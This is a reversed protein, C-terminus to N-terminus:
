FRDRHHQYRQMGDGRVPSLTKNRVEVVPQWGHSDMFPMRSDLACTGQLPSKRRKKGSHEKGKKKKKDMCRCPVPGYARGTWRDM